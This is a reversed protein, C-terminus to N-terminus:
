WEKPPIVKVIGARMGYKEIRRVYGYFGGEGEFEAMTPEFVPVGKYGGRRGNKRQSGSAPDYDADYYYSPRLKRLGASDVGVPRPPKPRGYCDESDSSDSSCSLHDETIFSPLPIPESDSSDSPTPPASDPKRRAPLPSSPLLSPFPLSHPSPPPILDAFQLDRGLRARALAPSSQPQNHKRKPKAKPKARKAPSPQPDKTFKTTATRVRGSARITSGSPAPDSSDAAAAKVEAANTIDSNGQIPSDKATAAQSHQGTSPGSM